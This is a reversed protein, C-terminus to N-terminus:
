GIILKPPMELGAKPSFRLDIKRPDSFNAELNSVQETFADFSDRLSSEDLLVDRDALRVLLDDM